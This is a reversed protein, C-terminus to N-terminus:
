VRAGLLVPVLRRCCTRSCPVRALPGEMSADAHPHRALLTGDRRILSISSDQGLAIAGFYREFYEVEMAGLVLGLFEGHPGTVKRALHITWTGTVRNRVPEGMYSTLQADSKLVKFFERDSADINPVPWLRSFNVLKGQSNILTLSAVHPMGGAKDKLMLHVDYGSMRREYDDASVIGRSQMQEILAEEVLTVAQFARDTHEALVM